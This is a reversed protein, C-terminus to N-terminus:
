IRRPMRRFFSHVCRVTSGGALPPECAHNRTEPEAVSTPSSTGGALLFMSILGYTLARDVVSRRADGGTVLSPIGVEAAIQLVADRRVQGGVEGVVGVERLDFDVLLLDVQRAKRQAKRLLAIEEQFAAADELEAAAHSEAPASPVADRRRQKVAAADPEIAAADNRDVDAAAQAAPHAM